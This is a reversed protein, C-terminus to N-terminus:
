SIFNLYSFLISFNNYHQYFFLYFISFCRVHTEISIFVHIYVYIYTSFFLFEAYNAYCMQFEILICSYMYPYLCIYLLGESQFCIM